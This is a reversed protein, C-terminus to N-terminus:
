PIEYLDLLDPSTEFLLEFIICGFSYVDIPQGYSGGRLLEPASYLPTGVGATLTLSGPAEDLGKEPANLAASSFVVTGYDAVKARHPHATVLVNGSKLDRHLHGLAHIFSMGRAIDTLIAIK